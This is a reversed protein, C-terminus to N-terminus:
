EFSIATPEFVVVLPNLGNKLMVKLKRSIVDVDKPSICVTDKMAKYLIERRAYGTDPTELTLNYGEVRHIM